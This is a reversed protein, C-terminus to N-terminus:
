SSVEWRAFLSGALIEGRGRLAPRLGVAHTCDFGVSCLCMERWENWLLTPVASGTPMALLLKKYFVALGVPEAGVNNIAGSEM